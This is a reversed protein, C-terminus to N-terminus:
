QRLAALPSRPLNPLPQSLNEAFASGFGGKAAVRWAFAGGDCWRSFHGQGHFLRELGRM